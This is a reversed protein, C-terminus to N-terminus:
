PPSHNDPQQQITTQSVPTPPQETPTQASHKTTLQATTYISLNNAENNKPSDKKTPMRDAMGM